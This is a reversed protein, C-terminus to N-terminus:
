LDLAGEYRMKRLDFEEDISIGGPFETVFRVKTTDAPFTPEGQPGRRPFFILCSFVKEDVMRYYSAAIKSSGFSLTAGKFGTQKLANVLSARFKLSDRESEIKTRPGASRVFPDAQCGLIFFQESLGRVTAEGPVPGSVEAWRQNARRVVKASRWTVLAVWKPERPIEARVWPSYKRVARVTYVDWYTWPKADWPQKAALGLTSAVLIAVIAPLRV